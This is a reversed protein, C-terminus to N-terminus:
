RKRKATSPKKQPSSDFLDPLRRMLNYMTSLGSVQAGKWYGIPLSRGIWSIASPLMELEMDLLEQLKSADSSSFHTQLIKQRAVEAKDKNENLELHPWLKDGIEDSFYDGVNQLAHNSNYTDQISSKNCLLTSVAEWGRESILENDDEDDSDDDQEMPSGLRLCVVTKNHILASTLVSLTGDNHNNEDILLERLGFNPSRLYGSLAELGDPTISPNDSLSLHKLTSMRSVLRILLRLGDDDINNRSLHLKVLEFNSDQLTNFFSVWDHSSVNTGMWGGTLSDMNLVKLTSMNSLLRGLVVIGENGILSHSVDLKKLRINSRQLSNFILQWGMPGISRNGSIILSKLSRIRGLLALVDAEISNQDLNLSELPTQSLQLLLIQWGERNIKHSWLNLAKLSSGNLGLGLISVGQDNIANSRLSLNTLKCNPHRMVTSLARWGASGIERNGRLCLRKLINNGMLAESLTQVAEDDLKSHSVRLVKLKSRPHNLVKGIARCGVSGWKAELDPENFINFMIGVGLRTLSPHGSLGEILSAGFEDDLSVSEIELTDICSNRYICSFFDQLQQRTPLNHGEEGLIYHQGRPRGLCQGNFIIHLRKIHTNNAICYGDEKWDISNFNYKYNQNYSLTFSISTISPNNLKIKQFTDKYLLNDYHPCVNDEYEDDSDEADIESSEDAIDGDSNEVNDDNGQHNTDEM